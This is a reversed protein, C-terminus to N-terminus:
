VPSEGKVTVSESLTSVKMSVELSVTQGQSVIVDERVVTQFGSLAPKVTYAGAALGPLRYVGSAATTGVMEQPLIASSISITVGPVVAGQQDTAKVLISGTQVQALVPAAVGVALWVASLRLIRRM